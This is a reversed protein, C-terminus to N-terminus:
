RWHRVRKPEQNGCLLSRFTRNKTGDTQTQSIDRSGRLPNAGFECPLRTKTGRETPNSPWLWLDFIFTVPSRGKQGGACARNIHPLCRQGRCTFKTHIKIWSCSTANFVFFRWRMFVIFSSASPLVIFLMPGYCACKKLSVYDYNIAARYTIPCAMYIKM